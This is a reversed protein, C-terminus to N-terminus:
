TGEVEHEFIPEFTENEYGDSFGINWWDSRVEGDIDWWAEGQTFNLNWWADGDGEMVKVSPTIRVRTRPPVRLRGIVITGMADVAPVGNPPFKAFKAGGDMSFAFLEPNEQSDITEIPSSLKFHLNDGGGLLNMFVVRCPVFPRASRIVSHMMIAFAVKGIPGRLLPYGDNARWVDRIWVDQFNWDIYTTSLNEPNLPGLFAMDNTSRATGAGGSQGTTEQDYYSNHVAGTNSGILGGTSGDGTVAGTAYTNVTNSNAARGILGGCNGGSTVDGRAFSDIVTGESGGCLGGTGSANGTNSIDGVACCEIITGPGGAGAVGGAGGNGGVLGGTWRNSSSKTIDVIAWCRQITGYNRGALGGTSPVNGASISGKVYCDEITGENWGVLLGSFGGATMSINELGLRRITGANSAFLGIFDDPASISGNIIKFGNGNFTGTFPITDSQWQNGTGEEIWGLPVFGTGLTIDAMLRHSGGMANRVNDLDTLNYIDAM